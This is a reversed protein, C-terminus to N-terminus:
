QLLTRVHKLVSRCDPEIGSWSVTLVRAWKDATSMDGLDRALEARMLIARMLAGARVPDAWSGHPAFALANLSRDLWEAAARRDGIYKLIAAEPLVADITWDEAPVPARIVKIEDINRRAELFDRRRVALQARLLRATEQRGSHVTLRPDLAFALESVRVLWDNEIKSKVDMRPSRAMVDQVERQAATVSDLPMGFATFVLLRVVSEGEPVPVGRLALYTDNHAIGAAFSPRGVLAALAGMLEPESTNEMSVGRLVSDALIRANHILRRNSPIGIKFALLAEEAALKLTRERDTSVSRALRLTDLARPDGVLELAYSVAELAHSDSPDATRWAAAIDNFVRKQHTVALSVSNPALWPQKKMLDTRPIPIFAISDHLWAPMARYETTDAGTGVGSRIYSHYVFLIERMRSYRDKEFAKLISPLLRFARQYADTAERYSSRFSVGTPSNADKMVADDRHLCEGLDLWAAFSDGALQTLDRFAPCAVAYNDDALAQLGRAHIRDPLSIAATDVVAHDAAFRWQASPMYLWYRVQALWVYAATFDPDAKVALSFQSDAALLSWNRVLGYGRIFARRAPVSKSGAVNRAVELPIRGFLLEDALEDFVQRVDEGNGIRRVADGLIAGKHNGDHLTVYLRISDGDLSAEGKFYRGAGLQAALRRAKRSSLPKGDANAVEDVEIMDKVSIGTWRMLSDHLKRSDAVGHPIDKDLKFPFVAYSSSDAVLNASGRERVRMALPVSSALVLVGVAVIKRWPRSTAGPIVVRDMPANTAVTAQIVKPSIIDPRRIREILERTNDLPAVDLEEKLRAEYNAYQRIAETRDGSLVLLEILRHNAEDELGDQEVWRRAAAIAGPLRNAAVLANVNERQAKRHLRELHARQKDVWTEFGKSNNLFFGPLFPGKYLDAARAFEAQECFEGLQWADATLDSTVLLRGGQTDLWRDGLLRRLEYIAQSLAHRAREEGSEGWFVAAVEDRSVNRELALYVLLAFRSKQAPLDILEVDDVYCAPAGLTVLRISLPM